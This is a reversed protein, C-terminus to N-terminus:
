GMMHIMRGNHYAYHYSDNIDHILWWQYNYVYDIVYRTRTCKDGYRELLPSLWPACFFLLDALIFCSQSERGREKWPQGQLLSIDITILIYIYWWIDYYIMYIYIYIDWVDYIMYIMYIMYFVHLDYLGYLDYIMSWIDNYIYTYMYIIYYIYM